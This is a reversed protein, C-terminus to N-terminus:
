AIVNTRSVLTAIFDRFDGCPLRRSISDLLTLAYKEAYVRQVEGMDLDARSVVVRAVTSKKLSSGEISTHLLKAYYRPANCMCDIVMKLVDGFEGSNKKTYQHGYIQRYCSFILKLQPISRKSFIELVIAEDVSGGLRGGGIEFLRKADCRAIHLSADEHHAKHSAALAVLIKQLPSPPETNIIDQELNRGFRASYAQKIMLFHSSKRGVFIEVLAKYDVECDMGSRLSQWAVIADRVHPDSSWLTLGYCLDEPVKSETILNSILDEGYMQKYTQIIALRQSPHSRVLHYLRRDQSDHIEQCTERLGRVAPPHTMLAM